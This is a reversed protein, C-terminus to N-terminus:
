LDAAQSELEKNDTNSAEPNLDNLAKEVTDLDDVSTIEPAAPAEVDDTQSMDSSGKDSQGKVVWYGVGGLAFVIVLIIAGEVVTFGHQNRHKM